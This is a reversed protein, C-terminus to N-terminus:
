VEKRSQHSGSAGSRTGSVPRMRALLLPEAADDARWGAQSDALHGEGQRGSGTSPMPALGFTTNM